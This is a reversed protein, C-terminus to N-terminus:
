TPRGPGTIPTPWRSRGNTGETRSSTSPSRTGPRSRCNADGSCGTLQIESNPLLEYWAFYQDGVVPLTPLSDEGVGAQILDTSNYGGIGTWTAAFGPPFIGATPVTFTSTVATIGGGSPTVAYGSWNLSTVTGGHLPLDEQSNSRVLVGGM